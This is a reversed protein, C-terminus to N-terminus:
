CGWFRYMEFYLIAVVPLICCIINLIYRVTLVKERKHSLVSVCSTVASIGCIAICLMQVIGLIVGAIVPIGGQYNVYVVYTGLLALVSVLRAIQGAAIVASGNYSTWKGHKKLKHRIRLLYVAAVALLVYVTFLCLKVFYFSDHFFDISPQRIGTNGDPYTKAGLLMANEQDRIQYVNNGINQIDGMSGASIATLYPIFKLMGRYTSRAPLYYGNLEAKEVTGSVYKDPSLEGFILAPADSLFDNGNPENVMIVLGTKSDIDFIMNAQGATTGGTHGYTRVAYETCWFGHACMPIDSEGYFDTGMFMMAQTEPNQFLPADDNVLAQAYIMLDALTGTAAGAPYAPIYNLCNGLDICHGISFKYSKMEKRRNYVWENDSHAPNLATHEMGLPEFINKHVYECYDQGTVCEIVYGAVAAGYNSYATVEGPRHIQAPEIAQLEEGLPLIANEDTKWIPRTTEQWGANHNMLNMMTIPEDYSLRQFFGDPLYERVDSDLDLRGQEWLQMASVWILTKSISGWEYVSSEDAPIHNEIDTEGFYGSYLVENGQFVGVAASAFWPEAGGLEKAKDELELQVKEITMGSPLTLKTDAEEASVSPIMMSTLLLGACLAAAIRKVFKKM